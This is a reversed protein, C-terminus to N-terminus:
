MNGAQSTCGAAAATDIRKVVNKFATGAYSYVPAAGPQVSLCIMETSDLDASFKVPDGTAGGVSAKYTFKAGTPAAMGLETWSNCSATDTSGAAVGQMDVCNDFAARIAGLMQVAEASKATTMQGTIKPLALTALVGIIVIVIIIEILTFGQNFRKKM